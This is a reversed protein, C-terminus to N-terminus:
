TAFFEKSLYIALKVFPIKKGILMLDEVTKLKISLSGSPHFKKFDLKGFKKHTEGMLKILGPIGVSKGNIVADPYFKIAKSNRDTFLNPGASKPAVERGDIAYLQSNSNDWYLMFGGGGINGARPLVVALALGTAVAADVANGTSSEPTMWAAAAKVPSSSEGRGVSEDGAEVGAWAAVSTVGELVSQWSAGDNQGSQAAVM